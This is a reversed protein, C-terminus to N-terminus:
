GWWVRMRSSVDMADVEMRVEVSAIADGVAPWTM